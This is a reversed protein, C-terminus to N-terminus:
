SAAGSPVPEAKIREDEPSASNASQARRMEALAAADAIMITAVIGASTAIPAIWPYAAMLAAVYPAVVLCAEATSEALAVDVPVNHETTFGLPADPNARYVEVRLAAWAVAPKGMASKRMARAREVRRVAPLMMEDRMARM